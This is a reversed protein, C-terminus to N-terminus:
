QRGLGKIKLLVEELGESAMLWENEVSELRSKLDNQEQQLTRLSEFNESGSLMRAEITELKETHRTMEQECKERLRELKQRDKKLAQFQEDQSAPTEIAPGRKAAPAPAGDDWQRMTADPDLVNPFGSLAALRCYDELCGEFLASRGDPLMAFVHTCVANIFSRDHSVFLVTGEFESLAESLIEVSSMDLHNTPEDLLLFNSKQLLLCALGVRSKEGGSLVGVKKFADDGRFLFSGLINRAIKESIDTSSRMVNELVSKKEDLIDLQTQAFYAAEVNLGEQFKGALAPIHGAITKLLTSKGIGNAGIIAIKQGRFIKLNLGRSLPNKDSYGISAKEVTLVERGSQAPKPLSLVLTDESDDNDYESELDKLRAAMKLKSQAQKAKTAKAGFREAFRELSERKKRLTDVRAADIELKKEREELFFDFNGKYPEVKGHHLHLTMTALRNLLDKDHSVFLLTGAYSQLYKEVWVLSPLDLHNTPEDLILFQPDNLFVKALELRMRWGGSLDTPSLELSAQSFGLGTLIGKARAEMAYCGGDRFEREAREFAGHSSESYDATMKEVATDLRTKLEQFRQAGALAERVVTAAPESNFEQPLYGLVAGAPKIMEGTDAEELGCLINLLTTKGAGNAGVLAIREGEPFHYTMGELLIKQGYSKKLNQVRIV